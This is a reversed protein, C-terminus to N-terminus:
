SEFEALESPIRTLVSSRINWDPPVSFIIILLLPSTPMPVVDGNAFSETDPSAYMPPFRAAVPVSATDPAVVREEVRLTEPREVRELRRRVPEDVRWFKVKTLAVPVEAVVVFKKAVLMEPVFKLRPEPTMVFEVVVLAVVVLKKLVVAEEVLRKEVLPLMPVSVAPGIVEPRTLPWVILEAALKVPVSLTVPPREVRELRRRVPEDVRWFRVKTLAVPVLTLAVFRLKVFLRVPGPLKWTFEVPM